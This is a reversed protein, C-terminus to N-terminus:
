LALGAFLGIEANESLEKPVMSQVQMKGQLLEFFNLAVIKQAKYLNRILYKRQRSSKFSFIHQGPNYLV